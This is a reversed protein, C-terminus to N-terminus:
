AGASVRGGHGAIEHGLLRGYSRLQGLLHDGRAHDVIARMACLGYARGRGIVVSSAERRGDVLVQRHRRRWGDAHPDVHLPSPVRM